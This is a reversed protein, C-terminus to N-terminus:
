QYITRVVVSDEKEPKSVVPEWEDPTDRKVIGFHVFLKDSPDRIDRHSLGQDVSGTPVEGIAGIAAVLGELHVTGIGRPNQSKRHGM